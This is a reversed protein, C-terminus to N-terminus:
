SSLSCSRCKALPTMPRTCSQRGPTYASLLPQSIGAITASITIPLSISIFRWRACLAWGIHRSKIKLDFLRWAQIIYSGVAAYMFGAFLPVGGIKTYAEEPYSWSQIGGSTKFWELAFGVLHFLTISKVEDWTELKFYLMAAQVSVAFILLLDYRSIGLWGTKPILFMAIFFLGAFLCARAEKLGFFWFEVIFRRWGHLDKRKPHETLWTDLKDLM